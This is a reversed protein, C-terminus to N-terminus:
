SDLAAYVPSRSPMDLFMYLLMELKLLDHNTQRGVQEHM